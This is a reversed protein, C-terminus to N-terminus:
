RSRGPEAREAVISRAELAGARHAELVRVKESFRGLSLLLSDIASAAKLQDLRGLTTIVRQKVRPDDRENEVVQLYEYGGSAKVRVFM